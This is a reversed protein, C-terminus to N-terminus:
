RLFVLIEIWYIIDYNKKFFSNSNESFPTDYLALIVFADRMHIKVNAYLGGPIRSLKKKILLM